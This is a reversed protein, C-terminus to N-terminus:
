YPLFIRFKAGGGVKSNLSVKGNHAEVILKVYYLGLGFGKTGYINGNPIRYFKNFIKKQFQPDIGVGNDAVTLEIGKSNNKTSIEVTCNDGAYKCANEILNNIINSVHLNDGRIKSNSAQLNTLFCNNIYKDSHKQDIINRIIFHLDINERKVPMISNEAMSMQLIREIHGGLKASENSIISLYNIHRPSLNFDGSNVMIESGMAISTLPTKFEHTMNNVFDKQVESLKKQRLIVYMAYTIFSLVFLIVITSFVWIEMGQYLYKNHFPFTITFYYNDYYFNGIPIKDPTEFKRLTEPSSSIFKRFVQKKGFCDYIIYEFDEKIGHILFEKKLLGELLVPNIKDNVKVIFTNKPFLLVPDVLEATNENYKLVKSAVNKLAITANLVFERQQLDIAKKVWFIQSLGIGIVSFTGLVIVWRITRTKM